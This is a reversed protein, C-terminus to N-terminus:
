FFVGASLTWVNFKSEYEADSVLETLGIDYDIGISFFSVFATLGTDVGFTYSNPTEFPLPNAVDPFAGLVNVTGLVKAHIEAISGLKLARFGIGTRAKFWNLTYEHDYYEQSETAQLGVRQYLIGAMMYSPGETIRIDLALTYGANSMNEPTLIKNTFHGSSLGYTINVGADQAQAVNLLLIYLLIASFARM